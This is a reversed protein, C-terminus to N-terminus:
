AHPRWSFVSALTPGWAPMSSSRATWRFSGKPARWAMWRPLRSLPKGLISIRLWPLLRQRDVELVAAYTVYEDDVQAMGVTPFGLGVGALPLVADVDSINEWLPGHELEALLVTDGGLHAVATTGGAGRSAGTFATDTVGAYAILESGVRVVGSDPFGLTSVVPLADATEDIGGSLSTGERCPDDVLSGVDGGVVLGIAFTLESCGAMGDSHAAALTVPATAGEVITLSQQAPAPLSARTRQGGMMALLAVLFLSGTLLLIGIRTM